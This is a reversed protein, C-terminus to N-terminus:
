TVFDLCYNKFAASLLNGSPDKDEWEIQYQLNPLVKRITAPFYQWQTKSWMALVRDDVNLLHSMTHANYTPSSSPLFSSEGSSLM